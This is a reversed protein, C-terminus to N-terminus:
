VTFTAFERCPESNAPNLLEKYLTWKRKGTPTKRKDYADSDAFLVTGETHQGSRGARGILNHFDRVTIRESSQHISSVILYRIPLNVGQALTSTCIVFRTLGCRLSHEVALRIGHPTNGYHSLVGLGAAKTARADEGLHRQYLFRLRRIEDQDSVRAPEPISLGRQYAEVLKGCLTSVSDKRACFIAVTGNPALKLGLYLAVSPTDGKDPFAREKHDGPLRGLARSEIVRPVFFEGSDAANEKVFELRGLTDPWSAFAVMRHTPSLDTGSVVQSGHSDDGLWNSIADANSIVASMLVTQADRPVMRKLSTLLLEYTVGRKGSDFQHGEDYILLGIRAALEPSHRLVYVLKEPTMVLIQAQGLLSDATFDVQLTDSLEEVTVPEDRFAGRLTARIEHCLARFPAVIVALSARGSLFASRIILQTARTMGASTPMQVVASGGRFVGQAGLLHQAPWLEYMFSTKQLTLVM